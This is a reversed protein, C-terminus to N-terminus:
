QLLIAIPVFVHLVVDTSFHTLIASELGKRWYIWGYVLGGLSNIVLSRAIAANTVPWGVMAPMQLHALGFIVAWIFIAIVMIGKRPHGESDRFILGGLWALLSVGFFRFLIEETVGASIAAMFGQWPSARHLEPNLLNPNSFGTAAALYPTFILIDVAIILVGLLIGAAVGTIVM